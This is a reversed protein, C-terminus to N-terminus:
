SREGSTMPESGRRTRARSTCSQGGCTRKGSARGYSSPLSTPRYCPAATPRFCGTGQKPRVLEWRRALARLVGPDLAWARADDTKNRDLTVVGRDLDVDRWTLALLESARMGERAAVGFLLREVLPASELALLAADESPYLYSFGPPKGAKPMFGKPIPNQQILRLPYVALELVRRMVQAYHRRTAPRKASEPLQRMAQEAHDLKFRLVPVSGLKIGGVDLAGLFELRRGDDAGNKDKVHDPWDKALQGSTWLKAVEAFTPGDLRKPLTPTGCLESIM